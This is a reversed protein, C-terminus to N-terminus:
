KGEGGGNAKRKKWAIDLIDTPDRLKYGLKRARIRTTVPKLPFKEPVNREKERAKTRM